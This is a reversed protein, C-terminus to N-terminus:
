RGPAPGPPQSRDLFDIGEQAWFRRLNAGGLASALFQRAGPVNPIRSVVFIAALMEDDVMPKEWSARMVAESAEPGIQILAVVAPLRREIVEAVKLWTNPTDDLAGRKLTINKILFPIAEKAKLRGFAEALGVNLDHENVDTPPNCTWLLLLPVLSSGRAAIKDVANRRSGDRALEHALSQEAADGACLPLCNMAVAFTVALIRGM